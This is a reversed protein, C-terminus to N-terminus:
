ALHRHLILLLPHGREDSPRWSNGTHDILTPDPLVDGIRLRGDPPLSSACRGPQRPRRGKLRRSM